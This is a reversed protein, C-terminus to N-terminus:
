CHLDSCSEVKQFKFQLQTWEQKCYRGVNNDIHGHLCSIYDALTFLNIVDVPLNPNVKLEKKLASDFHNIAILHALKIHRRMVVFKSDMDVRTHVVTLCALIIKRVIGKAVILVCMVLVTDAINERCGDIQYYV